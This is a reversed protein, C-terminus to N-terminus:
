VYCQVCVSLSHSFPRLLAHELPRSHFVSKALVYEAVTSNEGRSSAAALACIKLADCFQWSQM